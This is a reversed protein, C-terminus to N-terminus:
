ARQQITSLRQTSPNLMSNCQLYLGFLGLILLTVFHGYRRKLIFCSTSSKAIITAFHNEIGTEWPRMSLLFAAIIVM